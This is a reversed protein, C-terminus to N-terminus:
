KCDENILKKLFSLVEQQQPITYNAATQGNGIKITVATTQMATFMDEDTKDDGMCLIFGAQQQASITKAVMGKNFNASRIEIVKNGDLVQLATNALMSTLNQLLERSRSFGLQKEMNRYHWAISHEKQEIFSGHSRKAFLELTPLIDKKWENDVTTLAQWGKGPYKVIAGHEAVITVPLSGLWQDLTHRDRGSIIVLENGPRSSLAQLIQLIPQEPAALLPHRAFPMLTGDYDFFFLRKEAAKMKQLIVACNAQDLLLTNKQQQVQKAKELQQLFDEVWRQVNYDDLRAQMLRMNERQEEAPLNLSQYIAEAVETEDFPNVLLAESLENSAGALESLILVGNGATRSAVYEKAVLNMGDRLPTILAVDAVQYFAALNDFDLHRYFYVIPQWKYNSFKGNISSVREEIMKKRESYKSIKDRSPIVNLLMIVKGHWEKHEELFRRYGSLRQLVGKTYDLRDLSFILKQEPFNKRIDNKLDIVNDNGAANKFKDTDIGIPFLDATIVRDRFYIQGFENEANFIMQVAELFYRRYEITHFGILDAGLLGELMERRWQRPIQRFIEFHPFPIHLFFGITLEPRLKRLLGPLLFLHYDHIWVVDDASAIAAIKEAFLENVKKYAEFYETPFSAYTPFYHFLPWVVSNSFGNYYADYLKDNVFIPHLTFDSAQQLTEESKEWQDHRFDAIGIWLKEAFQNASNNEFYSKIASVLGGSSQRFVKKKGKEAEQFPLRNAVILLRKNREM